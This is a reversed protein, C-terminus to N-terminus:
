SNYHYVNQSSVTVTYADVYEYGNKSFFNLADIMSNFVIRKGDAGKVQNDKKSFLKNEQGFDLRITLKNSLMKSTGVIQIYDVDIDEIPVNNVTQSYANTLGFAFLCFTIAIIKRM